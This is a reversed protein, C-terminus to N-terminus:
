KLRQMAEKAEITVRSGSAGNAVDALLKKADATGIRELLWICRLGRLVEGAPPVAPDLKALLQELRTRQEASATKNLAAQMDGEVVEGRKALERAAEERVNYKPHDLKAILNPIDKTIPLPRLRTQLTDTAKNPHDLLLWLAKWARQADTSALDTWLGDIGSPDWDACSLDPVEWILVTSDALATALLKRDPSFAINQVGAAPIRFTDSQRLDLILVYTEVASALLRADPSVDAINWDPLRPPLTDIVNGTLSEWLYGEHGEETKVRAAFFKDDSPIPLGVFSSIRSTSQLTPRPRCTFLDARKGDRAVLTHGRVFHSLSRGEEDQPLSVPNRDGPKGAADYIQVNIRDALYELSMLRGDPLFAFSLNVVKSHLPLPRIEDAGFPDLRKVRLRDDSTCVRVTSGDRDLMATLVAPQSVHKWLCAMTRADWVAIVDPKWEQEPARRDGPWVTLLRKGDASWCLSTAGVPRDTTPVPYLPKGSQLDWRQVWSAATVISKGDPAFAILRAAHPVRLRVRSTSIDWVTLEALDNMALREGDPSLEIVWQSHPTPGGIEFAAARQGSTADFVQVSNGDSIALRRGNASIARVTAGFKLGVTWLERGTRVDRATLEPDKTGGTAYLRKGDPSLCASYLDARDNLVRTFRDRALDYRWAVGPKGSPAGIGTLFQGAIGALFRGDASLTLSHIRREPDAFAAPLTFTRIDSRAMDYLCATRDNRFYLLRGDCALPTYVSRGMLESLQQREVVRGTGSDFVTVGTSDAVVFQKGDAIWALTWPFGGLPPALGLRAVAGAPLPDGNPDFCIERAPPGPEASLGSTAVLVLFLVSRVPM